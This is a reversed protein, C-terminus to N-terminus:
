TLSLDTRDSNNMDGAFEGTFDGNVRLIPLISGERVFIGLERDGFRFTRQDRSYVPDAVLEKTNFNYWRESAPLYVHVEYKFEGLGEDMAVHQSLKPAVLLQKGLMFQSDLSFTLEDQPFEYYM